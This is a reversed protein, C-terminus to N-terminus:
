LTIGNRGMIAVGLLAAKMNAEAKVKLAKAKQYKAVPDAHLRLYALLAPGGQKHAALKKAEAILYTEFVVRDLDPRKAMREDVTKAVTEKTVLEFAYKARAPKKAVPAKAATKIQKM